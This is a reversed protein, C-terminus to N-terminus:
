LAKAATFYNPSLPPSRPPALDQFFTPWWPQGLFFIKPKSYRLVEWIAKFNQKKKQPINKLM